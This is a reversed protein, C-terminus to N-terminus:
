KLAEKLASKVAGEMLTKDKLATVVMDKISGQVTQTVAKQIPTQPKVVKKPLEPKPEESVAKPVVTQVQKSQIQDQHLRIDQYLQNVLTKGVMQYGLTRQLKSIQTLAKTIDDSGGEQNAWSQIAMVKKALHEDNRDYINVGLFDNIRHYKPDLKWAEGVPEIHTQQDSM